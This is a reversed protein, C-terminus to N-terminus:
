CQEAQLSVLRKQFAGKERACVSAWLSPLLTYSADVESAPQLITRVAVRAVAEEGQSGGGSDLGSRGHETQPADAATARKFAPWEFARAATALDSRFAVFYLRNRRQPLLEASNLVRTCTEYGADQLAALIQAFDFGQNTNMLNSVNELLLLKPRWRRAVRVVEYFLQGRRDLMGPQKGCQSFPQCPFGATLIDHPGIEDSAIGMIDGAPVDAHNHEYILRAVPDLESAFVCEGGLPELGCRFGGVGAFLEAFTFWAGPPAPARRIHGPAPQRLGSAWLARREALLSAIVEPIDTGADMTAAGLPNLHVAKRWQRGADLAGAGLAQLDHAGLEVICGAGKRWGAAEVATRVAQVERVECVLAGVACGDPLLCTSAM